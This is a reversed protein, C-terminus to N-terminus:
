HLFERMKDITRENETRQHTLDNIERREAEIQDELSSMRQSCAGVATDIEENVQILGQIAKTFQSLIGDRKKLLSQSNNKFM